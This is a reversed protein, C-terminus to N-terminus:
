EDEPKINRYMHSWPQLQARKKWMALAQDRRKKTAYRSLVLRVWEKKDDDRRWYWQLYEAVILYRRKPKYMQAAPKLKSPEKDKKRADRPRDRGMLKASKGTDISM